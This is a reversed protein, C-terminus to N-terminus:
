TRTPKRKRTREAICGELDKKQKLRYVPRSHIDIGLLLLDDEVSVEGAKTKRYIVGQSNHWTIVRSDDTQPSHGHPRISPDLILYGSRTERFTQSLLRTFEDTEYEITAFYRVVNGRLPLYVQWNYVQM